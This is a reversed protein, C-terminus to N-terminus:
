RRNRQCVLLDWSGDATINLIKHGYILYNKFSYLISERTWFRVPNTTRSYWNKATLSSAKFSSTQLPLRSPSHSTQPLYHSQSTCMRFDQGRPYLPKFNPSDKLLLRTPPLHRVIIQLRTPLVSIFLNSTHEGM